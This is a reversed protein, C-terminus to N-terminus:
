VFMIVENINRFNEYIEWLSFKLWNRVWLPVDKSLAIRCGPTTVLFLNLGESRSYIPWFSAVNYWPATIGLENM